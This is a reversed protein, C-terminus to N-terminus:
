RRRTKQTSTNARAAEEAELDHIRHDLDSLRSEMQWTDMGGNAPFANNRFGRTDERLRSAQLRARLDDREARLSSLEAAPSEYAPPNRHGGWRLACAPLAAGILLAFALRGNL